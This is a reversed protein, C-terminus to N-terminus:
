AFLQQYFHVLKKEEAQWNFEDRARSCNQRLETLLDKNHLMANINKALSEPSLDDILVAVKCQDNIQRYAPYDVCLQPICAHMYDFFRNALSYYNSAGRNEFITIGLLANQTIKKLEAPEALGKLFVKEELRHKRILAKAQAMFNGDGYIFFLAAIWQFAPILTEFSRGENVAGQYLIFTEHKALDVAQQLLPVNRIVDYNVGYTKQLIDAIFANVTYGNQFRPLCFGEVCKWVKYVM